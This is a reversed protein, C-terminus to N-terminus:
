IKEQPRCDQPIKLCQWMNPSIPPSIPHSWYSLNEGTAQLRTTNEFMAFYKNTKLLKFTGGNSVIKHYTWFNYFIPHSWCSLKKGTAQLRTTNEFMALFTSAEIIRVLYKPPKLLKFIEGTAQLRTTNEFMAVTAPLRTTNEFWLINPPKLLKFKWDQPIKLCQWM